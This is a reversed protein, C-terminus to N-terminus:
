NKNKFSRIKELIKIYNSLYKWENDPNDSFITKEYIGKKENNFGILYCIVIEYEKRIQHIFRSAEDAYTITYNHNLLEKGDLISKDISNTDISKWKEMVLNQHTQNLHIFSSYSEKPPSNPLDDESTKSIDLNEKSPSLINSHESSPNINKQKEEIEFSGDSNNTSEPEQEKPDKAEPELKETSISSKPTSIKPIKLTDSKLELIKKENMKKIEDIEETSFAYENLSPDADQNQFLKNTFKTILKHFINDEM